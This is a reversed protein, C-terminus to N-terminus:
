LLIKSGTFDKIFYKYTDSVSILVTSLTIKNQIVDFKWLSAESFLLISM